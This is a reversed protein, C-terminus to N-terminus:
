RSTPLAVRLAHHSKSAGQFLRMFLEFADGRQFQGGVIACFAGGPKLVRAVESLVERVDAVLMLVM